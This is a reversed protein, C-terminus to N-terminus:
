GAQGKSAEVFAMRLEHLIAGLFQGEDADVNGKTKAQLMSLLGIAHRASALDKTTKGTVPHARLGLGVQAQAALGACLMLLTPEPMGAPPGQTTSGPKGVGEKQSPDPGNGPTM